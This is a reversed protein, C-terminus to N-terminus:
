HAFLRKFRQIALIWLMVPWFAVCLMSTAFASKIASARGREEVLQLFDPDALLDHRDLWLYLAWLLAGVLYLM